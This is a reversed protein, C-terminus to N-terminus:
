SAEYPTENNIIDIVQQRTLKYVNFKIRAVNKTLDVEVEKIGEKELLINTLSNVCTACSMGQVKIEQTQFSM